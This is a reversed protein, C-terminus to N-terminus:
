LQLIKLAFVLFIRKVESQMVKDVMNQIEEDSVDRYRLYLNYLQKHQKELPEQHWGKRGNDFLPDLRDQNNRITHFKIDFRKSLEEYYVKRNKYEPDSSTKKAFYLNM